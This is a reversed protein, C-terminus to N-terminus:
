IKLMLTLRSPKNVATPLWWLSICTDPCSRLSYVKAANGTTNCFSSDLTFLFCGSTVTYPFWPAKKPKVYLVIPEKQKISGKQSKFTCVFGVEFCSHAGLFALLKKKISDQFELATINKWWTPSFSAVSYWSIQMLMEPPPSASSVSLIIFHSKISNVLLSSSPFVGVHQLYDFCLM